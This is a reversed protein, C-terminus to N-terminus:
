AHSSHSRGTHDHRGHNGCTAVFYRTQRFGSSGAAGKILCALWGAKYGFSHFFPNVVLYRDKANMGIATTFSEFVQVNQGHTTMAGKPVGTTGSTFIIDSIDDDAVQAATIPEGGRGLFADFAARGDADRIVVIEQLGALDHGNLMAPYDNGLFGKVTFLFKCDSRRLIDAAEAGKYRTNLTVMIAGLAQGALTTVIWEACNPAWIGFRDGHGLGMERMVGATRKVLGALEGYSLRWDGDQIALADPQDAAQQFLIDPITSM